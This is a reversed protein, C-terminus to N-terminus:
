ECNINSLANDELFTAPDTDSTWHAYANMIAVRYKIEILGHYYISSM